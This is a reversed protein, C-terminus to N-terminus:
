PLKNVPKRAAASSASKAPSPSVKLGLAAQRSRRLQAAYEGGYYLECLMIATDAASLVAKQRAGSASSLENILGRTMIELMQEVAQRTRKNLDNVAFTDPANRVMVFVRLARIANDATAADVRFTGDKDVVPVQIAKRLLGPVSELEKGVLASMTRKIQTLRERWTRSQSFDLDVELAKVQEHYDSLAVSFGIPDPNYKRHEQALISLREVESLAVDMLPAYRSKALVALDDTKALRMGFVALAAPHSTRSLLGTALIDMDSPHKALFEATRQMLDTDVKFRNPHLTESYPEFFELLDTELAFIRYIDILDALGRAGGMETSLRRKSVEAVESNDLAGRFAALAREQLGDIEVALEENSCSNDAARDAVRAIENPLVDRKLWVWTKNLISRHIRGSQKEKLTEDLLYDDLPRFFMRQLQSKRITGARENRFVEEVKNVPKEGRILGVSAQLIVDVNPDVGGQSQTKELRSVLSQVARPSLEGLYSQIKDSVLKANKM